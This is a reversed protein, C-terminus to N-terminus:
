YGPLQCYRSCRAGLLLPHREAVLVSLFPLQDFLLRLLRPSSTGMKSTGAVPATRFAISLMPFTLKETKKKM